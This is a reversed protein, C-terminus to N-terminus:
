AGCMKAIKNMKEERFMDNAMLKTRNFEWVDRHIGLRERVLTSAYYNMKVIPCLTFVAVVEEQELKKGQDTIVVISLNYEHMMFDIVEELKMWQGDLICLYLNYYIMVELFAEVHLSKPKPHKALMRQFPMMKGDPQKSQPKPCSFRSPKTKKVEQKVHDDGKHRKAHEESATNENNISRKNGAVNGTTSKTTGDVSPLSTQETTPKSPPTSDSSFGSKNASFEIPPKNVQLEKGNSIDNASTCAKTEEQFTLQAREPKTEQCAKSKDISISQEKPESLMISPEGASHPHGTKNNKAESGGKVLIKGKNDKNKLHTKAKSEPKSVEKEKLENSNEPDTNPVGEPNGQDRETQKLSVDGDVLEKPKGSVNKRDIIQNASGIKIPVVVNGINGENNQKINDDDGLGPMKANKGLNGTEVETEMKVEVNQIQWESSDSQSTVTNSDASGGAGIFLLPIPPDGLASVSNRDMDLQAEQESVPPSEPSEIERDKRPAISPPGVHESVLPFSPSENKLDVRIEISPQGVPESVSPSDPCENELDVRSEDNAPLEFNVGNTSMAPGTPYECLAERHPSTNDSEKEKNNTHQTQTQTQSDSFLSLLFDESRLVCQNATLNCNRKHM